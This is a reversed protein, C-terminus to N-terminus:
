RRQSQVVAQDRGMRQREAVLESALSPLPAVRRVSRLCGLYAVVVVLGRSVALVPPCEHRLFPQPQPRHRTGVDARVQGLAALAEGVSDPLRLMSAVLAPRREVPVQGYVDSVVRAALQRGRVLLAPLNNALEPDGGLVPPLVEVRDHAIVVRRDLPVRRELPPGALPDVRDALARLVGTNVWASHGVLDVPRPLPVGEHNPVYPEQHHAVAVVQRTRDATPAGLPAAIRGARDGPLGEVPPPSFTSDFSSKTM